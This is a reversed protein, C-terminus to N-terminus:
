SEIGMMLPWTSDFPIDYIPGFRYGKVALLATTKLRREHGHSRGQKPDVIGPEAPSRQDSSCQTNKKKLGVDTERM